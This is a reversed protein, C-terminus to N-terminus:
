GNTKETYTIKNCKVCISYTNGTFPCSSKEIEKHKCFLMNFMKNIM